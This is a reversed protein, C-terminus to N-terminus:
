KKAPVLASSACGSRGPQPRNHAGDWPPQGAAVASRDESLASASRWGRGFSAETTPRNISGSGVSGEFHDTKDQKAVPRCAAACGTRRCARRATAASHDSGSARLRRAPSALVRKACRARRGNDTAAVALTRISARRASPARMERGCNRGARRAVRHSRRLSLRQLHQSGYAACSVGPAGAFTGKGRHM